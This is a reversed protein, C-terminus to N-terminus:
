SMSPATTLSRQGTAKALEAKAKAKAEDESASRKRSKKTDGSTTSKGVSSPVAVTEGNEMKYAILKKKKPDKHKVEVAQPIDKIQDQLSIRSLDGLAFSAVPAAKALESIAHFVLRSAYAEKCASVEAEASKMRATTSSVPAAGM